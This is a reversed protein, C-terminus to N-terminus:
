KVMIMKKTATYQGAIIRYFYVGSSVKSNFAYEYTAPSLTGFDESLVETGTISYVKLTVSSKDPLDFKIKTSPNFPNPYNQYLNFRTPIETSVPNIGVFDAYKITAYDFNSGVGFSRGTVFANGSNDAVVSTGNDFSSAPGNYSMLWATTGNPNYKITVYDDSTAGSSSGTIYVNQSNDVFISRSVDVSNNPGLYTAHWQHIGSSSVKVTAYNSDFSVTFPTSAGTIYMNSNADITMATAIDDVGGGNGNYFYTWQEAGANSYKIAIFDYRTSSAGKDTSGAAYVFGAADVKIAVALDGGNATGNYRKVWSTTGDSNFKVVTFDSGTNLGISAGCVFVNGSNDVAMSNVIDENNGPGNYTSAWEQVGSSSYKIALFDFSNGTVFTKGAIYVNGAADVYVSRGEDANNAPGGYIAAWQQTGANNYKITVIDSLTAGFDVRGTVYVNGAADLAIAHSYDGGNVPGNYSASWVVQGSSNYKITYMDKGTAAGTSYGTIYVNGGADTVIANAWDSQNGAGNFRSVWEQGVSYINTVCIISTLLVLLISKM